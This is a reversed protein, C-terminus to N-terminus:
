DKCEDWGGTHVSCCSARNMDTSEQNERERELIMSVQELCEMIGEHKAKQYYAKQLKYDWRDIEDLCENVNEIVWEELSELNIKM